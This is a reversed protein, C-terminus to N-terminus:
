VVVAMTPPQEPQINSIGDVATTGDMFWINTMGSAYDRWLIDDALGDGDFDSVGEIHWNLAKVEPMIKASGTPQLGDMFWAVTDGTIYNRWLIDNQTADGDFSGVGAIEWGQGISFGIEIKTSGTPEIVNDATEDLFWVYISESEPNFWIPDDQNGDGDFDGLGQLLFNDFPVDPLFNGGVVATQGNSQETLWVSNQYTVYNRWILDDELGDGDLDGVGSIKWNSDPVALSVQNSATPIGNELFWVFNQGSPSRWIIDSYGNQDFDTHSNNAGSIRQNGFDLDSINDGSFLTVAYENSEGTPITQQWNDQAAQFVRYEGPDVSWFVYSGDTATQTTQEIVALDKPNLYVTWNSLGPEGEDQQGNGNVDDFVKGYLNAHQYLGADVSELNEGSNLTISTRSTEPDFDSDTTDDTGQNQPSLYFVPDPSAIPLYLPHVLELTYEGPNLNVFSYTGIENTTVSDVLEDSDDYLNITFGRLGPEGEEYIGNANLDNWVHDGISALAPDGVRTYAQAQPTLSESNGANDIATVYFEYTNGVEGLYTAETLQTNELWPTFEGGNESVYVTYNALGSGNDDDTGSWNVLFEPNPTVTPLDDVTSDPAGADLTNFIAPTNIPEETDFVITAEADIVTGTEVDADPRITYTVFGDGIGMTGEEREENNPPLFGILPNEPKEGTEPDITTLIWKAVGNVVDITAFADVFFGYEETLDLRKQYFSRNEPVEFFLDGWGFSGLRFSRWDLDPDLNQTIVVEQAPATATAINEFRITYPLTTDAPLWNEDGFGTPGLIDNPDKATVSGTIARALPTIWNGFYLPHSAYFDFFDGVWTDEQLLCAFSRGGMNGLVASAFFLLGGRAVQGYNTPGYQAPIRVSFRSWPQGFGTSMRFNRIRAPTITEWIEVPGGRALGAIATLAGALYNNDDKYGSWNDPDLGFDPCKPPHFTGHTLGLGAGAFVIILPGIEGRPDIFNLPSNKSYQYLNASGGHVGLPDTSLFRGLEVDYFRARMFDLNNASEMVGYQGIFEFPNEVQEEDILRKGFPSYAYRNLIEGSTGTLGTTSGIANFDYFATNANQEDIRSVLGLGHIYQAISGSSSDYEGVVNSLGTSRIPDYLNVRDFIPTGNEYLPQSITGIPDVLYETREGNLISAVRNGLADYVYETTTGDPEEVSVLRNFDDYAFKWEEDGTPKSVIKSVLNGDDDYDYVTNGASEYQNLDNTIHQAAQGNIVTRRRNGAADYEYTINQNPITPNTSEFVARTLQGTVDYTYSWDGDLTVMATQLGQNNYEYEFSSNISGNPTHNILETLRGATDYKYTTYTGNGKDERELQDLDNYTYRIIRNDDENTLEELRGANDYKYNVLNGLHDALRTRRGAKDYDYDLSRGNPYIIKDLFQTDSEYVFEITQQVGEREEIAEKLNGLDDYQYKFYDGDQFDIRTIQGRNNYAFDIPIERRNVYQEINGQDDPTFREASDDAYTIAIPNGQDDYSYRIPNGREDVVSALQNFTPDYTFQIDEGLPNRLSVLNGQDDYTYSLNANDPGQLSVLNGQDDYQLTFINGQPDIIRGVQGRSNLFMQSQNGESDTVTIGGTSDYNYTLASKGDTLKQSVLRGRDYEYHVEVNEADIARTLLGDTYEYTTTGAPTTVTTLFEGTPDYGFTTEFGSPDEPTQLRVAEIRDFDNYTYTITDGTSSELKTLRNDTYVLDTRNNNSDKLNTIRGDAAFTVVTGNLERLQYGEGAETLTGNDGPQSIYSGNAQREFERSSGNNEILVNGDENPLLQTDGIFSQGQGLSGVQKQQLLTQYWSAQQLEFALLESIDSRKEGLSALYAANEALLARLNGVNDGVEATFNDFVLDWSNDSLGFPQLNRKQSIWDTETDDELTNISFNIEGDGSITPKFVFSTTGSSGPALVGTLGDSDLGLFHIPEKTFEDRNRFRLEANDATIQLLPYVLDTEGTNTYAVTVVGTQGPRVAPPNILSVALEGVPGDNVTFSDDLRAQEEGDAVVVDYLGLNQGQLDFTAWLQTEDKWTVKSAKIETGDPGVLKATTQNSFEAGTLTLTVQGKNSGSDRSLGLLSFELTDATLSYAGGEPVQDGYALVYYTGGQTNPILIEQDPAFANPFSYDFESRSPMDGYRVYLENNASEAAGDLQLRLTEGAPVEVRYYAYQGTALSGNVSQGLELAQADIAITDDSVLLNNTEDPEPIRDLIDSRVIVHYEGPVVGPLPATVDRSYAQGPAVSGQVEIRDILTDGIDWQDDESLYISDTWRGEAPNEGQNEVTYSIAAQKGAVGEAEVTIDQAVLDSPPALTIKIPETQYTANNFEGEATERVASGWTSSDTVVFVFFDGSLEKPVEFTQTVTYEDGANLSREQTVAGLIRDAPKNIPSFLHPRDFIQDRSLFVSDIWERNGTPQGNNRVTWTVEIFQGSTGATPATISTVVLDAPQPFLNPDPNPNESISIKGVSFARNNGDDSEFVANSTDTDVIVNYDGVVGLPILFEAEATYTEGPQLFGNHRVLGARLTSLPIDDDDGLKDNLSLYARDYWFGANTTTDGNNVVTWNFTQFTANQITSPFQINTIELDSQRFDITIPLPSATNNGKANPEYVGTGVQVFLNYDGNFEKPILVVESRSYSAGPALLGEQGVGTLVVDDGNGLIGDKSATVYDTWRSIATDGIGQNTVTWDVRIAKGSIGTEPANAATVALDAPQSTIIVPSADLGINQSSQKPDVDDLEFVDNDIDTAVFVYYSGILDNPVTYNVVQTYSTDPRLRGVHKPKAILRATVPNFEPTPSLYVADYWTYNSTTSSGANKIRYRIALNRSATATDPAEVLAVELDPPPTLNVNIPNTAQANNGELANEFVQGTADTDVFFYYNGQVPVFQDNEIFAVPLTIDETRTYSDGVELLGNHNFSALFVDEAANFTEDKSMYIRDTWVVNSRPDWTGGASQVNRANTTFFGSRPFLFPQNQRLTDGEGQNTVTWTLSLPEGSLAQSPGNITPKLDPSPTINVETVDGFLANDQGNSERLITGREFFRANSPPIYANTNVFFYYDGSVTDPLTVEARSTYSEGPNLYSINDVQGLFIDGSRPLQGGNAEPRFESTLWIQDYWTNAGTTGDNTITWEVVTTQNTFVSDPTIVESVKLNPLDPANVTFNEASIAVNNDENGFEIVQNNADTEVVIHPQGRFGLPVSIPVTRDIAKGAPITGSFTFVGYLSDEGITDDASLYVSDNWTGTFDDTGQNTIKWSVEIVQGATVEEGLPTIDSVILDVDLTELTIPHIVRNDAENTEAQANGIDAAFILHYEGPAVDRPITGSQRAIYNENPALPSSVGVGRSTIRVDDRDGLQTNKSLYVEDVWNAAASIGGLNSVTWGLAISQNLQAVEPANDLTLSLNPGNNDIVIPVARINDQNNSEVQTNGSDTRFLLHYDGTKDIPLQAQVSVTYSGDAALPSPNTVIRSTLLTDEADFATDESLYVADTWNSVAAGDGQNSVTWSLNITEYVSASSPATISDDIVLNPAVLQIPVVQINNGDNVEIQTEGVDTKFFLNYEGPDVVPVRINFVQEYSAGAVLPTKGGAAILGLSTDDQDGVIANKSLIIQDTWNAIAGAGGQNTVQWRLLPTDNILLQSPLNVRAITLDPGNANITIPVARVNDGDDSEVQTNDIDTAFLLFHDGVWNPLQKQNTLTYTQGAGLPNSHNVARSALLFDTDPNLQEDTSLYVQDRWNAVTGGNGQNQVTWSFDITEYIAATSPANVADTVILNPITITIPAVFVNDAEDTELQDSEVDTAFLLFRDGVANTPVRILRSRTYSEEAALSQPRLFPSVLVIDDDDPIEDESLYVADQWNSLASVIGTNEVEWSLSLFEGVSASTPVDQGNITLNPDTITIPVVQTNNSLEAELQQNNYNTKFILNYNGPASVIPRISGEAAYSGGVELPSPNNYTKTLIPTDEDDLEEDESLYVRDQWSTTNTEKTGSNVVSWSIDFRENRAVTTPVIPQGSFELDVEVEKVEFKHVYLNDDENEEFQEDFQDINFLLYYEGIDLTKTAETLADRTYSGGLEDIDFPAVDILKSTLETDEDDIQNDTSIYVRDTWTKLAYASGRNTVTWAFDLSEGQLISAPADVEYVVLNPANIEIEYAGDNDNDNTEPQNGLPDTEVLLFRKGFGFEPKVNILKKFTYSEGPALPTKSGAWQSDIFTDSDDLENNLSLYIQDSWSRETTVTGQNEVTWSIEITDQTTIFGPAFIDSVVLNPGEANSEKVTIPIAKWNNQSNTDYQGNSIGRQNSASSVILFREGIQDSSISITTQATYTGESALPAENIQVVDLFKDSTDLQNDESIYIYDFWSTARASDTGQNTVTWNVIFPEVVPITTPFDDLVSTVILDVDPAQLEIPLAKLNNSFDTEPHEGEDNVVAIL